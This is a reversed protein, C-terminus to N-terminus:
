KASMWWLLSNITIGTPVNATNYLREDSSYPYRVPVSAGATPVIVPYGTRRFDTYAEMQMFLAIYKAEIINRISRDGLVSSTNNTLWTADTVGFKNLSAKVAADYAANALAQSSVTQRLQAEAEIFLTEVYTMFPVPSDISGYFSGFNSGGGQFVTLRPDGAALATFTTSPAIDTRQVDFQYLPNANSETTGFPIQFDDNNSPIGASCDALIATYDVSTKNSLHMAYRARLSHAAAIWQTVNGNYILDNTSSGLPITNAGNDTSLDAIAETLLTNITAYISQQTDYKPKLNTNGQFAEAYPVDGFLDTATGLAYAMLVKGAGRAQPNADGTKRIYITLDMMSASYLYYWLTTVDSEKINYDKGIAVAQRAQGSVYQVWMGTIGRVDFGGLEYGLSVEISPLLLNYPVDSVSNPDKNIDPNIWKKCSSIILVLILFTGLKILYRTKM